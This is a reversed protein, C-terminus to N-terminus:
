IASFDGGRGAGASFRQAGARAEERLPRAGERAENALAADLGLGWQALASARDSRLCVQPFRALDAALAEAAARAEGPQTVQNALGFSLAERADVPRGTLIMDLARSQGILRPLRVTGGDVLPVGWRRCFVGFVATEAAIRLDCWLALELGGAVAYGEVAAIVPKTTTMRTPGMPGASRPESRAEGAAVTKLDYGACFCGGEGTLVAVLAEEDAEFAEFASRLLAATEFDVANRREPRNIAVTTVPGARSVLVKPASADAM